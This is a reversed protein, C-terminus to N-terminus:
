WIRFGLIRWSRTGWVIEKEPLAGGHDFLRRTVSRDPDEFLAGKSGVNRPGPKRQYNSYLMQGLVMYGLGTLLISPLAQTWPYQSIQIQILPSLIM